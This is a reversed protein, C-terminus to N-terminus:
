KIFKTNAQDIADMCEALTESVNLATGDDHMFKIDPFWQSKSAKRITHIYVATAKRINKITKTDPKPANPKTM